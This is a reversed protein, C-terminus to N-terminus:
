PAHIPLDGELGVDISTRGLQPPPSSGGGSADLAHAAETAYGRGQFSAVIGYAIEVVGTVDPAGKFAASGIISRSEKHM